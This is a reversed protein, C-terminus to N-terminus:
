GARAPVLRDNPRVDVADAPEAAGAGKVVRNLDESACALTGKHKMSHFMHVHPM